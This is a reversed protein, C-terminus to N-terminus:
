SAVEVGPADMCSRRTVVGGNLDQLLSALLNSTVFYIGLPNHEGEGYDDDTIARLDPSTLLLCRAKARMGDVTQARIGFIRLHLPETEAEIAQAADEQKDDDEIHNPGAVYTGNARWAWLGNYTRQLAEFESCLALLKADPHDPLVFPVAGGVAVGALAAGILGRRTTPGTM